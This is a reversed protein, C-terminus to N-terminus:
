KYTLCKPWPFNTPIVFIAWHCSPFCLLPTSLLSNHFLVNFSIIRRALLLYWEILLITWRQFKPEIKLKKKDAMSVQWIWPLAIISLVIGCGMTAWWLAAFQEPFYEPLFSNNFFLNWIETWSFKHKKKTLKKYEKWIYIIILNHFIWQFNKEYIKHLLYNLIFDM